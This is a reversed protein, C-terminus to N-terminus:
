ELIIKDGTELLLYFGNELLLFESSFIDINVFPASIEEESTITINYGNLSAKSSGSEITYREIKAGHYLGGFRFSGDNFEVVFRLDIRQARDLELTTILDSKTLTFELSQSYSVGNEDNNITESFNANETEYKFLTTSPFSTVQQGNRVISANPYYEYKALYIAKVGGVNDRCVIETRGKSLACSM